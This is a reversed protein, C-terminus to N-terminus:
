LMTSKKEGVLLRIDGFSLADNKSLTAEGELQKGNVYVPYKQDLIEAVVMGDKKYLHLQRRALCKRPVFIDNYSESGLYLSGSASRYVSKLKGRQWFEIILPETTDKDFLFAGDSTETKKEALTSSDLVETSNISSHGDSEGELNGVNSMSDAGQEYRPHLHGQLVGSISEDTEISESEEDLRPRRIVEASSQKRFSYLCEFCTSANDFAKANCIPCTKM